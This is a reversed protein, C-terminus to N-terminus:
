IVTDLLSFSFLLAFLHGFHRYHNLLYSNCMLKNNENHTGMISPLQIMLGGTSDLNCIVFIVKIKLLLIKGM